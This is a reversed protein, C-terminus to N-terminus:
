RPHDPDAALGLQDFLMWATDATAVKGHGGIVDSGDVPILAPGAPLRHFQEGARATWGAPVPDLESPGYGGLAHWKDLLGATEVDGLDKDRWASLQYLKRLPFDHTSWTSLITGSVRQLAPRYGGPVREGADASFCRASTAPQLLLASDVVSGEPAACLASLMVKCGFSHGVLHHSRRHNPTPPAALVDALLAGVGTSGVRHSRDKMPRFSAVRALWLTAWRGAGASEVGDGLDLAQNPDLPRPQTPDVSAALRQAASWSQWLSGVGEPAADAASLDEFAWDSGEFGGSVLRALEVAEGRDVAGRGLLERARAQDAAPLPEVLADVLEPDLAPGAGAVEPGAEDDGPFALSPWFVGIFLPKFRGARRAAATAPIDLLNTVWSRYRALVDAWSNNWGHSLLFVHTHEPVADVAAQRAQISLCRGTRDFRVLHLEVGEPWGSGLVTTVGSAPLDDIPM